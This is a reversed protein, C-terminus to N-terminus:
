FFLLSSTLFFFFFFTNVHIVTSESFYLYANCLVLFFVFVFLLNLQVADSIQHFTAQRPVSALKGGVM